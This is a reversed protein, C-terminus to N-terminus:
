FDLALQGEVVKKKKPIGKNVSSVDVQVIVESLKEMYELLDTTAKISGMAIGSKIGELLEKRIRNVEEIGLPNPNYFEYDEYRTKSMEEYSLNLRQMREHITETMSDLAGDGMLQKALANMGDDSDSMARLGEESFKGQMALAADIKKAIHMLVKEQITDKYVMTYVKVPKNQKIRWSRRSSQMYDYTSYDMQYYVITPFDLLDLGVKVLKPNTILVDWDNEEMKKKLWAEREKSNKPMRIGDYSGSSRLIGVKFGLSKLHDYLYTDMQNFSSAGTYKVYVLVKREKKYVEDDVLNILSRLKTPVFEQPDFQEPRSLIHEFGREDETKILRCNFPADAYQYMANIYTSVFRMGGLYVNSRMESGVEKEVKDYAAKHNPDMDIVMPIEQYSPLAYGLDALELFSCNPMLYPAFLNPSIGPKRNKGVRRRTGQANNDNFKHEFVGYRQTFLNEDNYSISEKLLRKSDLRALLYFIDSAMGGMLTGTLLIQKETHNILQGFAQAVSSDGSKYEHVEDAILYKFFGRPLYKNILWVPSVKRKKSEPELMENQWLVYGCKQTEHKPVYRNTKHDLVWEKIESKPLYKTEVENMCMYNIEKQTNKWKGGSRTQFFREDAPEFRQGTNKEWLMGGCKPCHHSSFEPKTYVVDKKGSAINDFEEKQLRIRPAKPKELTFEEDPNAAALAQNYLEMQERYNAMQAEIDEYRVRWDKIPEMPYTYKPLDSNIIYYEIQKPNKPQGKLELVDQWSTIEKVICNPIREKVERKWKEVMISPSFIITRFPKVPANEDKNELAQAIYPMVSGVPTKGVGMEGIMFAYHDEQLTKAISMVADAQPPFLGTIGQQNAHMNVDEFRPHHRDVRPDFRIRISEQISEGLNSAFHALYDELGKLSSLVEEVTDDDEIAFELELSHIGETIINELQRETLLLMGAELNIDSGFVYTMLPQFHKREILQEIIYDKWEELMPTNYRDWLVKFLQTKIDGDWALILEALDSPPSAIASGNNMRNDQEQQWEIREQTSPKVQKDILLFHHLDDVKQSYEDFHNKKFGAHLNVRIIREETQEKEARVVRGNKAEQFLYAVQKCDKESGFFSAAYIRKSYRNMGPDTVIFNCFAERDSANRGGYMELKYIESVKMVPM